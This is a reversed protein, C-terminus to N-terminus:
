KEFECNVKVHKNAAFANLLNLYQPRIHSNSHLGALIANNYTSTNSDMYNVLTEKIHHIM